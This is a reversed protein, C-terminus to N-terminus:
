RADDMGGSDMVYDRNVTQLAFLADREAFLVTIGKKSIEHV